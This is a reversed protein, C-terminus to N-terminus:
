TKIRTSPILTLDEALVITHAMKGAQSISKEQWGTLIPPSSEKRDVKQVTKMDNEPFQGSCNEAVDQSLPPSPFLSDAWHSGALGATPELRSDTDGLWPFRVIVRTRIPGSSWSKISLQWSSENKDENGVCLCLPVPLPARALWMPAVSNLCEQLSGLGTDGPWATKVPAMASGEKGKIQGLAEHEGERSEAADRDFGPM